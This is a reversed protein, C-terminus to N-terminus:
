DKKVMKELKECVSVSQVIGESDLKRLHDEGSMEAKCHRLLIFKKM